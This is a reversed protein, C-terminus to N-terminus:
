SIKAPAGTEYTLPNYAEKRTLKRTFLRFADFPTASYYLSVAKIGARGYVDFNGPSTMM